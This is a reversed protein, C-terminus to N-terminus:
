STYYANTHRPELSYQNNSRALAFGCKSLWRPVVFYAFCTYM